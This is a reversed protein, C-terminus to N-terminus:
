DCGASAAVPGDFAAVVARLLGGGTMAPDQIRITADDSITSVYLVPVQPRISLARVRFEDVTSFMQNSLVLDVPIYQRDLVEAAEDASRARLVRIKPRSASRPGELISTLLALVNPDNDVVLVSRSQSFSEDRM